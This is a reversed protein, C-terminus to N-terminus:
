DSEEIWGLADLRSYIARAFVMEGRPRLHVGDRADVLSGRGHKEAAAQMPPGMELLPLDLRRAAARIAPNAHDLPWAKDEHEPTPMPPPYTLLLLRINADSVQRAIAHLNDELQKMEQGTEPRDNGGILVIAVDPEHDLIDAETRKLAGPWGEGPRPTTRDGAWGSNIMRVREVGLRAEIMLGLLDSYKLYDGQYKEGPRHGTLSDGFCVVTLVPEVDDSVESGDRRDAAGRQVAALLIAVGIVALITWSLHKM